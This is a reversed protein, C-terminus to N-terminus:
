IINLASPFVLIIWGDNITSQAFFVPGKYTQLFTISFPGVVYKIEPDVRSEFDKVGVRAELDEGFDSLEWPFSRFGFVM